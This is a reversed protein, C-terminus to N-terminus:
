PEFTSEENVTRNPDFAPSDAPAEGLGFAGQLVRQVRELEEKKDVPIFAALVEQLTHNQLAFEVVLCLAGDAQDMVSVGRVDDFSIVLTRPYGAIPSAFDLRLSNTAFNAVFRRQRKELREIWVASAIFVAGAVALAIAPTVSTVTVVTAVSFLLLAIGLTWAASSKLTPSLKKTEGILMSPEYRLAVDGLSSPATHSQLADAFRAM